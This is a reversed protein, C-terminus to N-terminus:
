WLEILKSETTEMIRIIKSIIIQTEIWYQILLERNELNDYMLQMTTIAEFNYIKIANIITDSNYVKTQEIFKFYSVIPLLCDKTALQYNAIHKVRDSILGEKYFLDNTLGNVNCIEDLYGSAEKDTIDLIEGISLTILLSQSLSKDMKIRSLEAKKSELLTEYERFFIVLSKTFDNVLLEIFFIGNNYFDHSFDIDKAKPYKNLIKDKATEM